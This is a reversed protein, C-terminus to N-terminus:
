KFGRLFMSQYSYRSWDLQRPMASWDILRGRDGYAGVAALTNLMGVLQQTRFTHTDVPEDGLWASM